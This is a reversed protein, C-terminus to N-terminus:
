DRLIGDLDVSDTMKERRRFPRRPRMLARVRVELEHLREITLPPPPEWGDTVQPLPEAFLAPGLGHRQAIRGNGPAHTALLDAREAPSLWAAIGRGLGDRDRFAAELVKARPLTRQGNATRRNLLRMFELWDRSPTINFAELDDPFPVMVPPPEIELVRMFFDVVIGGPMASPEYPIVRVSAQGFAEEWAAVLADAELRPAFWEAFERLSLDHANSGKIFQAYHAALLHDQRRLYVVANVCTSVRNLEHSIIAAARPVRDAVFAEEHATHMDFLDEASLVVTQSGPSVADWLARLHKTVSEASSPGNVVRRIEAFLAHHNMEHPRLLRDSAGVVPYDIGHAALWKRNAYLSSQLAKSGTKHQGIHLIVRM